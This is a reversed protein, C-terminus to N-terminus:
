RDARRDAAEDEDFADREALDEVASLRLSEMAAPDSQVLEVLEPQATSGPWDPRVSLVEVEHEVAGTNDDRTASVSVTVLLEIGDRRRTLCVDKVIASM